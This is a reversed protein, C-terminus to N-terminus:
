PQGREIEEADARIDDVLQRTHPHAWRGPYGLRNKANTKAQWECGAEITDASRRMSAATAQQITM